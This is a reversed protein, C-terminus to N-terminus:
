INTMGGDVENQRHQIHHTLGNHVGNQRHQGNFYSCDTKRQHNLETVQGRSDQPGILVMANLEDLQTATDGRRLDLVRFLTVGFNM